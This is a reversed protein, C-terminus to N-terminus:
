LDGGCKIVFDGGCKKCVEVANKGIEVANKKVFIWRM